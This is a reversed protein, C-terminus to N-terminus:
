LSVLRRDSALKLVRHYEGISFRGRVPTWANLLKLKVAQDTAARQLKKQAQVTKNM